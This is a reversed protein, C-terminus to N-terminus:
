LLVNTSIRASMRQQIVNCISIQSKDVRDVVEEILSRLACERHLIDETYKIQLLKCISSEICEESFWKNVISDPLVTSSANPTINCEDWSVLYYEDSNLPKLMVDKESAGPIGLLEYFSFILRVQNSLINDYCAITNLTVEDIIRSDEDTRVRYLICHYGEYTTRHTGNKYLGFVPKLEDILVSMSGHRRVIRATVQIPPVNDEDVDPYHLFRIYRSENIKSIALLQDIRVYTGDWPLKFM